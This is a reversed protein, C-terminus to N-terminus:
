YTHVNFYFRMMSVIKIFRNLQGGTLENIEAVLDFSVDDILTYM